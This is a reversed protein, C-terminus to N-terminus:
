GVAEMLTQTRLTRLRNLAAAIEHRRVAALDGLPAEAWADLGGEVLLSEVEDLLRPLDADDHLRHGLQVLAHGLARTQSPDLLQTLASLDLEADGIQLRHTHRVRLHVPRRGRAPDISGPLPSRAEPLRFTSTDCTTQAALDRAAQTVDHPRYDRLAVVTDAVGLYDGSGGMVLVTSVGHDDYLSRVRDIFPTIPEDEGILARMREDRIMFNTASTDEDILLLRAGSELAEITAAAQSTSGSADDSTFDVTDCGGPLEGLFPSVDVGTVRRGSEARLTVADADTVVRERGDGPQHDYIGHALAELLTSKGHYGGGVLLTIGAPIGMGAVRGAHPAQLEVRLSGPSDFPVVGDILPRDDIGSRRPLVAGDAVFAVLGRDHLQARLAVADEATDAWSRLDDTDGADIQLVRSVLDPLRRCLLEEAAAGLIRRGRAPLGMALRLEVAGDDDVLVATRQLLAQGPRDVDIRGSHGSGCRDSMGDAADTARQALWCTLARRRPAPHLADVPIDAAAADVLLRLRTPAAFPDGQVHDIRLRLPRPTDCRWEGKLQRYAGFGSGDLDLLLTRLADFDRM